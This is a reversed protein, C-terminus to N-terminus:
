GEYDKELLQSLCKMYYRRLRKATKQRDRIVEDQVTVAARSNSTNVHQLVDGSFMCVSIIVNDFMIKM